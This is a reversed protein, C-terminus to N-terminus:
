LLYCLGRQMIIDGDTFCVYDDDDFQQFIEAKLFEGHQLCNNPNKTEVLSNSLFGSHVKTITTDSYCCDLTVLINYDFNSNLQISKLYPIISNIYNDTSATTLIIKNM